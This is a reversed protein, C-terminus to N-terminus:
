ETKVMGWSSSTPHEPRSRYPDVPGKQILMRTVQSPSLGQRVGDVLLPGTSADGLAVVADLAAITSSQTTLRIGGLRASESRVRHFRKRMEPEPLMPQSAWPTHPKPIFPNVSLVLEKRSRNAPSFFISRIKRLFVVLQDVEEPTSDPMGLIVYMKLREIGAQGAMDALHFIKEDPIRKHLGFRLAEDGSEPAITLTRQGGRVLLEMLSQSLRDIELSSTSIELNQSILYECLQPIGPHCAIEAAILGVRSLLPKVEEIQAIMRDISRLRLRRNFYGTLCFKCGRVCGRAVEILFMSSLETQSTLIASGTPYENLVKLQRKDVIVDGSFGHVAPVFAGQLESLSQLISQRPAAYLDMGFLRDIAEGIIEEGDGLLFVDMLHALPAPNASVAIGGALLLPARNNRETSLPEIGGQLLFRILSLYEPEFSCSFALVDFDAAPRGSEVSVPRHGPGQYFLREVLVDSRAALLRYIIQFGLSSMGVFYTSPYVLGVKLGAGRSRPILWTEQDGSSVPKTSPPNKRKM